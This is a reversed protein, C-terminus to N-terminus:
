SADDRRAEARREAILEDALSVGEPVAGRVMAQARRIAVKPAMVRLEGDVVRAMVRGDPGIEMATRMEAPIVVRGDPGITLQIPSTSRAREDPTGDTQRQHQEDAEHAKKWHWYQTSATDPNGGEAVYADIVEARMARRGKMRTINDALRWVRGTKSHPDRPALEHYVSAM